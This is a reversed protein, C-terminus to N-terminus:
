EGAPPPPPMKPQQITRDERTPPREDNKDSDETGLIIHPAHRIAAYFWIPILLLLPWWVAATYELVLHKKPAPSLGGLEDCASGFIDRIKDTSTAAVVFSVLGVAVLVTVGFALLLKTRFTM